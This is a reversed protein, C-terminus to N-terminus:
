ESSHAKAPRQVQNLYLSLCLAAGRGARCARCVSCLGGAGPVADSPTRGGGASFSHLSLVSRFQQRPVCLYHVDKRYINVGNGESAM